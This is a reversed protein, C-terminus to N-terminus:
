GRAAFGDILDGLHAAFHRDLAARREAGYIGELTPGSVAFYQIAGILRYVAALAEAEDVKEWAPAARVLATLRDLFPKLPWARASADSDLLARVVLRADEPRAHANRAHAHLVAALRDQPADARQAEIEAVLRDGLASLVEAYLRAKTGFFHLLAQKSVGADEAVAALSTGHFGDAA